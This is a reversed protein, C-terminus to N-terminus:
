HHRVFWVYNYMCCVEHGGIWLRHIIIHLLHSVLTHANCMYLSMLITQFVQMINLGPTHFSIWGTNYQILVNKDHVHFCYDSTNSM